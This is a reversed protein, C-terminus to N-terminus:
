TYHSKIGVIYDRFFIGPACWHQAFVKNLLNLAWRISQSANQASFSGWSTRGLSAKCWFRWDMFLLCVLLRLLKVWYISILHLKSSKDVSWNMRIPFHSRKVNFEFSETGFEFVQVSLIHSFISSLISMSHEIHYKSHCWVVFLMTIKNLRSTWLGSYEATHWNAWPLLASEVVSILPSHRIPMASYSFFALLCVCLLFTHWM